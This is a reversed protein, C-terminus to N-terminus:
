FRACINALQKSSYIQGNDVYIKKPLGMKQIAKRLCHELNPLKAEFFFQAHLIVRSRDDLWALLQTRIKKTPDNPDPLYPGYMEFGLKRYRKYWSRITERSFRRERRNPLLHIKSAIASFLRNKEGRKLDPDLLPAILRYRFLSKDEQTM